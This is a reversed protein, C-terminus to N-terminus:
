IIPTSVTLQMMEESHWGSHVRNQLCLGSHRLARKLACGAIPGLDAQSLAWM